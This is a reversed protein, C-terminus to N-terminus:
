LWSYKVFLYRNEVKNYVSFCRLLKEFKHLESDSLILIKEAHVLYCKEVENHYVSSVGFFSVLLCACAKKRFSGRTVRIKFYENQTM